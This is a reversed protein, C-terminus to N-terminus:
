SRGIRLRNLIRDYDGEAEDALQGALLEAIQDFTAGCIGIHDIISMAADAKIENSKNEVADVAADIAADEYNM